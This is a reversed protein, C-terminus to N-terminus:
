HFFFFINITNLSLKPFFIKFFVKINGKTLILKESPAICELVTAYALDVHVKNANFIELLMVFEEAYVRPMYFIDTYGNFLRWQSGTINTLKDECRFYLTSTSDTCSLMLIIFVCIGIYRKFIGGFQEAKNYLMQLATVYHLNHGKDRFVPHDYNCPCRKNFSCHVDKKVHTCQNPPPKWIKDIANVSLSFM